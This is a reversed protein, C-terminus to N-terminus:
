GGSVATLGLSSCTQKEIWHLLRIGPRFAFRRSTCDLAESWDPQQQDPGADIATTDQHMPKPIEAM